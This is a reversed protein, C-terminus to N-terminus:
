RKKARGAKSWRATAAKLGLASKEPDSMSGMRRKGGIKGGKAGLRAMRAKYQTEFDPSVIEAEAQDTLRMHEAILQHARLNPDASPRKKAKRLPKPM